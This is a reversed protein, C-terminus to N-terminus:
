DDLEDILSDLTQLKLTGNNVQQIEKWMIKIDEEVSSKEKEYAIMYNLYDVVTINNKKAEQEVIVKVKRINIPISVSNM